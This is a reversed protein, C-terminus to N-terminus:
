AKFGLRKMLRDLLGRAPRKGLGKKAEADRLAARATGPDIADKRVPFMRNLLNRLFRTM